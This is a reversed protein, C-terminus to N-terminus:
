PVKSTLKYQSRRVQSSIALHSKVCPKKINYEKPTKEVFFLVLSPTKICMCIIMKRRM